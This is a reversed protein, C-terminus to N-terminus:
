FSPFIIQFHAICELTMNAVATQPETEADTSERATLRRGLDNDASCRRLNLEREPFTSTNKKYKAASTYSYQSKLNCTRKISPQGPATVEDMGVSHMVRAPNPPASHPSRISAILLVQVGTSEQRHLEASDLRESPTMYWTTWLLLAYLLHVHTYVVNM